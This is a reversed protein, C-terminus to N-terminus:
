FLDFELQQPLEITAAVFRNFVYLNSSQSGDSKETEYVTIIGLRTAKRLMRQFTSRSIGHNYSELSIAKLITGMAANCVGPTKASFQVLWKLGLLECKTLDCINQNLWMEMHHQFEELTTFKSFPELENMKDSMLKM